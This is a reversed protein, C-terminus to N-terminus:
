FLRDGRGGHAAEHALLWKKRWLGGTFGTLRGDSGIIRHCPILIVVPNRGNARAVARVAGPRGMAAAQEGYSRTEGYPVAALADWARREFPTGAPALPLDFSVRSGAFYEGLERRLRELLPTEEEQMEMGQASRDRKLTGDGEDAFGLLAIGQVTSGAVMRGLPTDFYVVSLKEMGGSIRKGFKIM